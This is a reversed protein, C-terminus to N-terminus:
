KSVLKVCPTHYLREAGQALRRGKYTRFYHNPDLSQKTLFGLLDACQLFHSDESRRGFPLELLPPSTSPGAAPRYPSAGHHDMIVILGQSGCASAPSQGTERTIEALLGGWALDLLARGGQGGKNVGIRVPRLCSSKGLFGLVHHACQFRRRIDLGHHRIAGGLFEAAHIEAGPRLGYLSDLKSRMGELGLRAELWREHSVLIASLIFLSSPSGSTGLDGSEDVYMVHM